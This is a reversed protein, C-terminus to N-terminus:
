LRSAAAMRLQKRVSKKVRRLDFEVSGKRMEGAEEIVRRIADGDTLGNAECIAKVEFSRVPTLPVFRRGFRSYLEEYGKKQYQLGTRFRREIYETSLFVIGCRGELANYLSIFYYMVPDALKDGEDFILLPSRMRVLAETISMLTERVTLGEAKIGVKRALEGVFDGKHMDESCGLVFVNRHESAYQQAATTKGIGASAVVWSVNQGTRADDLFTVLDKYASTECLRWDGATARGVQAAINMFMADSISEYKGNIISNVTGLSTNKLSNAAKSQSPYGAVYARLDERIAEKEAQTLRTQTM